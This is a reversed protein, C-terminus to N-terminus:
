SKCRRVRAIQNDGIQVGHWRSGDFTFDFDTRGNRGAMNHWSCRLGYAPIALSGDWTGVTARTADNGTLTIYLIGKGNRKLADIEVRSLEANHASVQETTCEIRGDPSFVGRGDFQM